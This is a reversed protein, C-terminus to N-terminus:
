SQMVKEAKAFRQKQCSMTINAAKEYLYRLVTTSLRDM